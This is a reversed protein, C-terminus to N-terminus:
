AVYASGGSGNEQSSKPAQGSNEADVMQSLINAIKQVSDVLKDLKELNPLKQLADNIRELDSGINDVKRELEEVKEPVQLYKIAFDKQAFDIEGELEGPSHDMRAKGPLSVVFYRSLLQAVPDDLALEYGRVLECDGLVCSYKIMLGKAVRDALNHAINILEGPSKGYLTEVHVIWSRSTHRVKVGQEMGLLATWNQMEVKRFDSPLLGERAIVYRFMCKELRFVGSSFLVGEGSELFTQGKMTLKWAVIASRKDRQILGCKEMKKLYYDVDQKKWGYIRAIKAGWDGVQIRKLIPIVRTLVKSFDFKVKSKSRSFNQSRDDIKKQM